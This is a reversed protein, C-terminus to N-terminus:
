TLELSNRSTTFDAVISYKSQRFEHNGQWKNDVFGGIMYGRGPDSEISNACTLARLNTGAILLRRLNRGGLRLKRLTYRLIFRSGVTIVVAMTWFYLVFTSTFLSVNLLTGLLYIFLTATTIAPITSLAEMTIMSLRKSHYLKFFSFVSHWILLFLLFLIFNGVKIRIGLFATFTHCRM